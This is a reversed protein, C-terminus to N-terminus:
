AEQKMVAASEDNNLADEMMTDGGRQDKGTIDKMQEDSDDSESKSSIIDRLDVEDNIKVEGTEDNFKVVSDRIMQEDHEAMAQLIKKKQTIYMEEIVAIDKKQMENPEKTKGIM